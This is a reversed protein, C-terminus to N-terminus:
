STPPHGVVQAILENVDATIGLDVNVNITARWPTANYTELTEHQKGYSSYANGKLLILVCTLFVFAAVGHAHAQMVLYANIQKHILDNTMTNYDEENSNLFINVNKYIRM